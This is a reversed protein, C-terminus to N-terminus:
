KRSTGSRTLAVMLRLRQLVGGLRAGSDGPDGSFPLQELLRSHPKAAQIELLSGPPTFASSESVKFMGSRLFKGSLATFPSSTCVTSAERCGAADRSAVQPRTHERHSETVTTPFLAMCEIEAVRWTMKPTKYLSIPLFHRDVVPQFLFLNKLSLPLFSVTSLQSVVLWLAPCPHVERPIRLIKRVPGRHFVPLM